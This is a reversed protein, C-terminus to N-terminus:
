LMEGKGTRRRFGRMYRKRSKKLNITERKVTLIHMYTSTHVYIIHQTWIVNSTQTNKLTGNASSLQTHEEGPLAVEGVGAKSLQSYNDTYPQPRVPKEEDLKAYESIGDM